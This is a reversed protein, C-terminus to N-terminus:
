NTHVRLPLQMMGRLSRAHVIERFNLTARVGFLDDIRQGLDEPSHFHALLELLPDLPHWRVVM